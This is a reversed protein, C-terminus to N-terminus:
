FCDLSVLVTVRGLDGFDFFTGGVFNAVIL